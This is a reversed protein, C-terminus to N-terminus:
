LEKEIIHGLAILVLSIFALCLLIAVVTALTLWVPSFVWIWSWEIYHTLKLTILAITTVIVMTSTVLLSRILNKKDSM